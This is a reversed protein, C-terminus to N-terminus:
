ANRGRHRWQFHRGYPNTLEYLCAPAVRNPGMEWVVAHHMGLWLTTVGGGVVELGRDVNVLCAMCDVDDSPSVPPGEDGLVVGHGRLVDM